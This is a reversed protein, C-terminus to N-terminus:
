GSSFRSSARSSKARASPTESAHKRSSHSTTARSLFARVGSVFYRHLRARTPPTRHPVAQVVQQRVEVLQLRPEAGPWPLIRLPRRARDEIQQLVENLSPIGASM